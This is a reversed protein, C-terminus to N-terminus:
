MINHMVFIRRCVGPMASAAFTRTAFLCCFMQLCRAEHHRWWISVNKVNSTTQSPWLHIGREFALPAFSTHKRQDSYWCVYILETKATIKQINYFNHSWVIGVSKPRTVEIYNLQLHWRCSSPWKISAEGHCVIRHKREDDTHNGKIDYSMLTGRCRGLHYWAIVHVLVSNSDTQWGSRFICCNKKMFFCKYM